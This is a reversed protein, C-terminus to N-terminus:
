CMLDVSKVREIGNNYQKDSVTHGASTHRALHPEALEIPWGESM